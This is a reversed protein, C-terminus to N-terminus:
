IAIQPREFGKEKAIEWAIERHTAVVIGRAKGTREKELRMYARTEAKESETLGGKIHGHENFRQRYDFKFYGDRTRGSAQLWSTLAADCLARDFPDFLPLAKGFQGLHRQPVPNSLEPVYVVAWSAGVEKIHYTNWFNGTTMKVLRNDVDVVPAISVKAMDIKKKDREVSENAKKILKGNDGQLRVWGDKTM